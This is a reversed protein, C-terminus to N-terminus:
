EEDLRVYYITGNSGPENVCRVYELAVMIRDPGGFYYEMASGRRSSRNRSGILKSFSKHMASEFHNLIKCALSVTGIM